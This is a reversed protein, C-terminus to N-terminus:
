RCQKRSVASSTFKIHCDDERGMIIENQETTFIFKENARNGELVKIIIKNSDRDMTIAIHIDGFSVIYSGSILIPKIVKIFTGTGDALDKIYYKKDCYRIMMHRQGLGKEDSPFNFDNFAYENQPCQGFYTVGDNAKRLSGELGTRTIKFAKNIM